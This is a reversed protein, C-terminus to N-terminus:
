WQYRPLRSLQEGFLRVRVPKGEAEPIEESSLAPVWYSRMLLGM